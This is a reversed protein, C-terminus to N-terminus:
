GSLLSSNLEAVKSIFGSSIGSPIFNAKSSVKTSLTTSPFYWHSKSLWSLGKVSKVQLFILCKLNGSLLIAGKISLLCFLPKELEAIKGKPTVISSFIIM